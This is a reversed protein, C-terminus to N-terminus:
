RLLLELKTFYKAILILPLLLTYIYIYIQLRRSRLRPLQQRTRGSVTQAPVGVRSWCQARIAVENNICRVRALSRVLTVRVDSRMDYEVFIHKCVTFRNTLCRVYIRRRFWGCPKVTNVQLVKVVFLAALHTKEKVICRNTLREM